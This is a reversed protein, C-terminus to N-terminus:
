RLVGYIGFKNYREKQLTIKLLNLLGAEDDVILIKEENYM